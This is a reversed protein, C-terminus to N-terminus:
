RMKGGEVGINDLQTGERLEKSGTKSVFNDSGKNLTLGKDRRQDSGM